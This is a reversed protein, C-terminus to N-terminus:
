AYTKERIFRKIQSEDLNDVEALDGTTDRSLKEQRSKSLVEVKTYCNEKILADEVDGDIEGSNSCVMVDKNLDAYTKAAPPPDFINIQAPDVGYLGDYPNLVHDEAPTTLRRKRTYESALM